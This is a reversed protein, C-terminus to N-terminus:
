GNLKKAPARQGGASPDTLSRRLRDEARSVAMGAAATSPLGFDRAIEVLSKEEAFRALILRRDKLRLRNLAERYLESREGRLALELPGSDLSPISDELAVPAPRRASRRYADCLRNTAVCKMFKRMSGAHAPTFRALHTMTLLAVDQALDGTDMDRRLRSSLRGHAWRKLRPLDRTLLEERASRSGAQADIVLEATRNDPVQTSRNARNALAM